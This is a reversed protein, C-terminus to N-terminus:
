GGISVDQFGQALFLGRLHEMHEDTPVVFRDGPYPRGLRDYKSSGTTHYPLLNVPVTGIHEKIYEVVTSMTADDDNVMGITPIRININAGSAALYELNSLILENTRGCWREHEGPDLLKIDYLWRDVWPLLREYATRPAYGSTDIAVDIGENKLACCLEELYDASQIMCEGGSLTVGGGSREYFQRDELLRPMLEGVSMRQDPAGVVERAERPCWDACRGCAICRAPDTRAKGEPTISIAGQECARTCFGCGTCKKSDFMLEPGALQSEPNHCWACRLPCGKFFVTTRIGPGDHVSFKQINFVVPAEM